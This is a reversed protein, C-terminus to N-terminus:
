LTLGQSSLFQEFGNSLVRGRRVMNFYIPSELERLLITPNISSTFANGDIEFQWPSFNPNMVKKLYDTKWLGPQVSNLYDSDLNFKCIDKELRTLRAWPVDNGPHFLIKDANYKQMCNIQDDMFKQSLESSFYYDDLVFFVFDEKIQNLGHLIRSGWQNKGALINLYESNEFSLTESVLYKKTEFKCYKKFLTDFNKWLFSYSDCSGILTAISM